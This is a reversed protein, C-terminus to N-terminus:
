YGTHHADLVGRGDKEIHRSCCLPGHNSWKGFFPWTKKLRRWLISFQFYWWEVINKGGKLSRPHWYLMLVFKSSFSIWVCALFMLWISRWFLFKSGFFKAGLFDSSKPDLFINAEFYRRDMRKPGKKWTVSGRWPGWGWCRCRNRHGGLWSAFNSAVCRYRQLRKPQFFFRYFTPSSRPTKKSTQNSNKHNKKNSNNNPPNTTKQHRWITLWFAVCLFPQSAVKLSCCNMHSLNTGVM